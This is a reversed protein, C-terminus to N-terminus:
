DAIIFINEFGKSKLTNQYMEAQELSTCKGVLVRYLKQRSEPVYSPKIEAHEYTQGLEQALREANGRDGFAGVQIAYTGKDYDVPLYMAQLPTESAGPRVTGLAEIEVEATGPGYVGLEKAAAVSLDIIRGPVFPGRDNIRVVLSKGNALNRVQVLTHLPLIKHAASIGHMDYIEGSSTTKGHFDEGYWSAIGRQRFDRAHALPRYWTDGVKYPRCSASYYDTRGSSPVPLPRKKVVRPKAEPYSGVPVTTAACGFFFPLALSLGICVSYPFFRRNRKNM